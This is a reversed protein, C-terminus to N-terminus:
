VALLPGLIAPVLHGYQGVPRRRRLPSPQSPPILNILIQDLVEVKPFVVNVVEHTWLAVERGNLYLVPFVAAEPADTSIAGVLLLLSEGDGCVCLGLKAVEVLDGAESVSFM